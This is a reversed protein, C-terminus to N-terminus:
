GTVAADDGWQIWYQVGAGRLMTEADRGQLLALTSLLGAQTCQQGFV